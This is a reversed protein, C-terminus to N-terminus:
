EARQAQMRSGIVAALATEIDKTVLDAGTKTELESTLDLIAGGLIIPANIGERKLSKIAETTLDLTGYSGVSMLVADHGITRLRKLISHSDSNLLTCVSHGRQRLQEALVAPGIIHDERGVTTLLISLGDENQPYDQWTISSQKCLGFLRASATSVRAFSLDDEIWGVGLRAAATPICHDLLDNKSVRLADFEGRLQAPNFPGTDLVADLLLQAGADLRSSRGHSARTSVRSIVTQALGDVLSGSRQRLTKRDENAAM